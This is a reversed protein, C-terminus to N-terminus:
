RFRRHHRHQRHKPPVPRSVKRPPDQYGVYTGIRIVHGHRAPEAQTGGGFAALTLALTSIAIVARVM